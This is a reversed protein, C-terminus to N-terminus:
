ILLPDVGADLEAQIPDLLIPDFIGEVPPGYKNVYILYSLSAMKAPPMSLSVNLIAKGQSKVANSGLVKILSNATDRLGLSLTAFFNRLVLMQSMPNECCADVSINYTGNGSQSINIASNNNSNLGVTPILSPM